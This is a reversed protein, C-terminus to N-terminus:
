GVGTRCAYRLEEHQGPVLVEGQHRQAHHGLLAVGGAAGLNDTVGQQLAHVGSRGDPIIGNGVEVLELPALAKAAGTLMTILSM